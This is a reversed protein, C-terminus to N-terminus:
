CGLGSRRVDVVVGFWFTECFVRRLPYPLFGETSGEPKSVDDGSTAFVREWRVMEVSVEGLDLAFAWDLGTASLQSSSAEDPLSVSVSVGFENFVDRVDMFFGGDVNSM